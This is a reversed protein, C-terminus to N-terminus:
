TAAVGAQWLKDIMTSYHKYWTPNQKKGLLFLPRSTLASQFSHLEVQILGHSEDVDYAIISVTPIGRFYRVEMQGSGVGDRSLKTALRVSDIIRQAQHEASYIAPESMAVAGLYPSEPDMLLLRFKTGEQFAKEIRHIHSSLLANASIAIIIVSKVNRLRETILPITERTKLVVNDPDKPHAQEVRSIKEEISELYGIKEILSDLALFGLLILIVKDVSLNFLNQPVEFITLVATVIIVVAVLNERKLLGRTIKRM